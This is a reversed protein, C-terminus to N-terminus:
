AHARIFDAMVALTRACAPNDPQNLHGHGTGPELRCDVRVGAAALDAAFREGSARLSDVDSNVMLCDPLGSLDEVDGPFAYRGGQPAYCHNFGSVGEPDFVDRGALAAALEDSLPPLEEHVIPYIPLWCSPLGLGRDRVELLAGSILNAGASAGGLALSSPESGWERCHERAWCWAAVVDDHPIPYQNALEAGVVRQDEPTGEGTLRYDVALVTGRLATALWRAVHDSEPMDLGGWMFAGGHAWVLAPAGPPPEAVGYRRVAVPGHPGPIDFDEIVLEDM